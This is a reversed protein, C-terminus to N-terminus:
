KPWLTPKPGWTPKPFPLKRYITRQSFVCEEWKERYRIAWLRLEQFWPDYKM